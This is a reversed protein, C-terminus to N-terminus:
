SPAYGPPAGGPCVRVFPSPACGAAVLVALVQRAAAPITALVPALLGRLQRGSTEIHEFLRHSAQAKRKAIEAELAGLLKEILLLNPVADAQWVDHRDGADLYSAIREIKGALLVGATCLGLEDLAMAHVRATKRLLVVEVGPAPPPPLDVLSIGEEECIRELMGVARALNEEVTGNARAIPCGVGLPCPAGVTAGTTFRASNAPSQCARM